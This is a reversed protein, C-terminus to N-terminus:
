SSTWAVGTLWASRPVTGHRQLYLIAVTLLCSVPIFFLLNVAVAQTVGQSRFGFIYQVLFQSFLVVMAAVMLWRARNVTNVVRRPVQTVLTLTLFATVMMAGFQLEEIRM